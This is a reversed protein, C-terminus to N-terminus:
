NGTAKTLPVGSYCGSLRRYSELGHRRSLLGFWPWELGTNCGGIEFCKSQRPRMPTWVITQVIVSLHWRLSRFRSYVLNALIVVKLKREWRVLEKNALTKQTPLVIELYNDSM